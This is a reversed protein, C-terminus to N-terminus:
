TWTRRIYVSKHTTSPFRTEYTSPGHRLSVAHQDRVRRLDGQSPHSAAYTTLLTTQYVGAEDFSVILEAMGDVGGQEQAAGDVAGVRLCRDEFTSTM